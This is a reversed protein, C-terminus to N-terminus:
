KKKATKVAEAHADKVTKADLGEVHAFMDQAEKVTMSALAQGDFGHRGRKVTFPKKTEKKKM